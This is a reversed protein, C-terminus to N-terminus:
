FKLVNAINSLEGGVAGPAEPLSATKRKWSERAPGPPRLRPQEADGADGGSAPTPPSVLGKGPAGDREAPRGAGGAGLM